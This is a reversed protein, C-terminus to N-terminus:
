KLKNDKKLIQYIIILGQLVLNSHHEYKFTLFPALESYSGGTVVVKLNSKLEQNTAKITENLMYNFGNGYGISLAHNTSNGLVSKYKAITFPKIQAAEQTLALKASTFGPGIVVGKLQEDKITVYTTATGLSITIASGFQKESAIALAILDSGLQKYKPEVKLPLLKLMAFNVILPRLKLHVHVIKNIIPLKKPVVSCIVVATTQKKKSLVIKQIIKEWYKETTAVAKHFSINQSTEDGYAIKTLTNGIDILLIM